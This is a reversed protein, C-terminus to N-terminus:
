KDEDLLVHDMALQLLDRVELRENMTAVRGGQEGRLEVLDSM